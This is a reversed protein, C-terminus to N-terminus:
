LSGRIKELIQDTEAQNSKNIIENSTDKLHQGIGTLGAHIEILSRNDIRINNEQLQKKLNKIDDYIRSLELLGWQVATLTAFDDIPVRIMRQM